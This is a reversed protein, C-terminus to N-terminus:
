AASDGRWFELWRYPFGARGGTLCILGDAVSKLEEFPFIGLNPDSGSPQIASSIRCLNVWGAQNTALLVLRGSAPLAAPAQLAGAKLAPRFNEPLNTDIELGLIPQVGEQLCRQFFIVAGTLWRHDTLALAPM